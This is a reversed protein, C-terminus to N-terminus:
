VMFTDDGDLTVDGVDSEVMGTENLASSTEFGADLLDNMTTCAVRIAEHADMHVKDFYHRCIM